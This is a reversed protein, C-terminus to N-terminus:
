LELTYCITSSLVHNVLFINSVSIWNLLKESMEGGIPVTYHQEHVLFTLLLFILVPDIHSCMGGM